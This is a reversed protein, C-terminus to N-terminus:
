LTLIWLCPVRHKRCSRCAWAGAAAVLIVVEDQSGSPDSEKKTGAASQQETPFCLSSQRADYTVGECGQMFVRVLWHMVAARCWGGMGVRVVPLGSENEPADM